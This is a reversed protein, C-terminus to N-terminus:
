VLRLTPTQSEWQELGYARLEKGSLAWLTKRGEDWVVGHGSYLETSFLEKEPTKADFIALRNGGKERVSCAVAIREGPLLEASHANACQGYFTTRKTARDVLAVGDSSATILIRNGAVAKCDDTTRFKTKYADPLEAAQAASWRWVVPPNEADKALDLIMVEDWGCVLLEAAQANAALFLALLLTKM